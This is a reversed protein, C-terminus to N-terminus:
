NTNFDTLMFYVLFPLKNFLIVICNFLNFVINSCFDILILLYEIAVLFDVKKQQELIINKITFLDFKRNKSLKWSRRLM